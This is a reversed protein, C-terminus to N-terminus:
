KSKREDPSPKKDDLFVFTSSLPTTPPLETCISGLPSKRKKDLKLKRMANILLLLEDEDDDEEDEEEKDKEDSKEEKPVVEDGLCLRSDPRNRIVVPRQPPQPSTLVLNSTSTLWIDVATLTSPLTGVGFTLTPTISNAAIKYMGYFMQTNITGGVSWRVGADNQQCTVATVGTSLSPATIASTITSSAGLWGIFINFYIDVGGPAPLNIVNTTTISSGFNSGTQRSLPLVTGFINGAAATALQASTLVYHDVEDGSGLSDYLKPKLLEVDYVVHLEGITAAAQMGQTAINFVGLDYLRQDAGTPVSGNRTYLCTVPTEGRACEIPHCFSVSPRSSTNFEYNEMQAKSTFVPAVSNYQTAMMVAGLATNTSNLADASTSNFEFLMGRICYQEYNSAVQSLWPFSGPLAVNIPFSQIAFASSGVVDGLYERYRIITGRGNKAFSPPLAGTVLTNSSVRYDGVGTIKKFLHHAAGGIYKGAPGLLAGGLKGGLGDYASEARASGPGVYYDGRGKIRRVGRRASKKKRVVVQGKSKALAARMRKLQDAASLKSYSM